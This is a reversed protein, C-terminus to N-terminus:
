GCKQLTQYTYNLEYIIDPLRFIIIPFVIMEFRQSEASVFFIRASKPFGLIQVHDVMGGALARIQIPAVVLEVGIQAFLVKRLRTKSADASSRCSGFGIGLITQTAVNALPVAEVRASPNM